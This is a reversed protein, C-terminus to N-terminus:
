YEEGSSATVLNGKIRFRTSSTARDTVVPGDLHIGKLLPLTQLSELVDTMNGKTHGVLLINRGFVEVETLYSETTLHETLSELISLRESHEKLAVVLALQATQTESFVGSQRAKEALEATLATIEAQTHLLQTEITYNAQLLNVFAALLIAGPVFVAAFNWLRKPRNGTRKVINVAAGEHTMLDARILQGGRVSVIKAASELLSKKLIHVQVHLKEGPESTSIKGIRFEVPVLGGPLTQLLELRVLDKVKARAARPFQMTRTLGLHESLRLTVDRGSLREKEPLATELDMTAVTVVLPRLLGFGPSLMWDPLETGKFLANQFVSNPPFISM